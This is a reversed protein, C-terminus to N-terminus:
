EEALGRQHGTVPPMHSPVPDPVPSPQLGAPAPIVVPPSPPAPVPSPPLCVHAPIVVPPSPPAPPVEVPPVVQRRRKPAPQSVAIPPARMGGLASVGVPLVNRRTRSRTSPGSGGSPGITLDTHLAFLHTRDNLSLTKFIRSRPALMASIEKTVGDPDTASRHRLATAFASHLMSAM